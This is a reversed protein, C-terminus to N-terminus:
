QGLNFTFSWPGSKMFYKDNYVEQEAEQQSMGEPKSVIQMTQVGNVDACNLTIAMGRETLDQQIKPMYIMCYDEAGPQASIADITVVTNSLDADPPVNLFFLTECRIGSKGEMPEQVSLMTSGFDINSGGSYQLSANMVTWNSADPLTFCVDVNVQKGDRWARDARVEIGSSTQMVTVPESEMTPYSPDIYATPGTDVPQPATSLNCAALLLCAFILIRKM